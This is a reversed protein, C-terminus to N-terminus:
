QNRALYLVKRGSRVKKLHGERFLKNLRQSAANQGKYGLASKIEEAEALGKSEIFTLIRQDTEPLIEVSAEKVESLDWKKKEKDIFMGDLRGNIEALIKNTKEREEALKFILASLFVPDNSYKAIERIDLTSDSFGKSIKELVAEARADDGTMISDYKRM